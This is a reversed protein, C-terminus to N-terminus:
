SGSLAKRADADFGLMELIEDNHEGLRPPPANVAPSDSGFLFGANVIEVQERDPLGPIHLRSTLRREALRPLSIAETVDRVIGCPVGAASLRAELEAADAHLLVGQLEDHM